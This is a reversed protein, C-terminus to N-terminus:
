PSKFLQLCTSREEKANSKASEQLLLVNCRFIYIGRLTAMTHASNEGPCKRVNSNSIYKPMSEYRILFRHAQQKELNLKSM